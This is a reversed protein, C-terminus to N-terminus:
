QQSSYRYSVEKLTEGNPGKARVLRGLTDYEYSTKQANTDVTYLIELTSPDYSTLSYTASIPYIVFNDFRCKASESRFGIYDGSYTGDSVSLVAMGNIYVSFASGSAQVRVHASSSKIGTQIESLVAAGKRIGVQGNARLFVFYGSNEVSHSSSTKRFELGGCNSPTGNDDVVSMDFEAICAGMNIASTSNLVNVGSMSSELEGKSPSSNTVSWTGSKISWAAPDNDTFSLNGFEDAMVNLKGSTTKGTNAFGAVSLGNAQFISCTTAMGKNSTMVEVNGSADYTIDTGPYDESYIPKASSPSPALWSRTKVPLYTAIGNVTRSEYVTWSDSHYVGNILTYTEDMQTLMNVGRMSLGVGTSNQAAYHVYATKAPESDEQTQTAVPLPVINSGDYSYATTISKTQSSRYSHNEQGVLRTTYVKNTQDALIAEYFNVKEMVPSQANQEFTKVRYPSGTMLTYMTSMNSGSKDTPFSSGVEANSLGNFFYTEIKGNNDPLTLTAKNYQATNGTQDYRGNEYAFQWVSEYNADGDPSVRIYQVPYDKLSGQYNRDIIRYLYSNTSTYLAVTNYHGIIDIAYSNLLVPALYNKQLNNYLVLKAAFGSNTRITYFDESVYWLNDTQNVGTDLSDWRSSSLPNLRYVRSQQNGGGIQNNFVYVDGAIALPKQLDGNMARAGPNSVWLDLDPDYNYASIHGNGDHNAIVLFDNGIHYDAYVENWSYPQATWTAGKFRYAYVDNGDAFAFFPGYTFVQADDNVAALAADSTIWAAGNPEWRYVREPNDNEMSVIYFDGTHIRHYNNNGGITLADSVRLRGNDFWYRWVQDNTPREDVFIFYDRSGHLQFDRDPTEPLTSDANIWDYGTFYRRYFLNGYRRVAAVYNKGVAVDLYHTTTIYDMTPDHVWARGIRDWHFVFIAENDSDDTANRNVVFFEDGMLVQQKWPDSAAGTITYIPSSLDGEWEYGTWYFAYVAISSGNRNLIVAYNPSIWIKGTVGTPIINSLTAKLSSAPTTEIYEYGVRVGSPYIVESLAGENGSAAAPLYTFHTGPQAQGTRDYPIIQKLLRKRFYETLSMSVGYAVFHDASQSYVLDVSSAISGDANKVIIQDLLKTEFQEMFADPEGNRAFPDEYENSTRDGLLFEIQRGMTDTIKKLYTARTYSAPSSQYESEWELTITNGMTNRITRLFWVHNAYGNAQTQLGSGIWNSWALLYSRSDSSGGYELQSGDALTVVWKDVVGNAPDYHREYKVFTNNDPRFLDTNLSVSGTYVLRAGGELYYRDDAIDKTGNFDCTIRLPLSNVNVTWGLGVWSAQQYKNEIHILKHVNSSYNLSVNLQLGNKGNLSALPVTLAVDGTFQSVSNSIWEFDVKPRLGVPDRAKSNGIEAEQCYLTYANLLTAILLLPVLPHIGRPTFM